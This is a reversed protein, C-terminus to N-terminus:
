PVPKFAPLTQLGEALAATFRVAGLSNLHFGEVYYSAPTDKSPLPTLVPVGAAHGAAQNLEYYDDEKGTPPIAVVLAVGSEDCARRLLALRQEVIARREPEAPRPPLSPATFVVALPELHPVTHQLAFKRYEGKAGFWGSLNAFLFDATRAPSLDLRRSLDPLDRTRLMQYAFTEGAVSNM